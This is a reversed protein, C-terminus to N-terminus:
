CLLKKVVVKKRCNKCVNWINFRIVFLDREKAREIEESSETHILIMM